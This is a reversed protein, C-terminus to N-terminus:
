LVRNWFESVLQIYPSKINEHKKQWHIFRIILRFYNNYFLILTSYCITFFLSYAINTNEGPIVGLGNIGM